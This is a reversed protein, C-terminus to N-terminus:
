SGAKKFIRSFISPQSVRRNPLGARAESQNNRTIRPLSGTGLDRLRQLLDPMRTTLDHPGLNKWNLCPIGEIIFALWSGPEWNSKTMISIIKKEKKEAFCLEQRCTRSNQYAPTPFCIFVWAKEIADAISSHFSYM